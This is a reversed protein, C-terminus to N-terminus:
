RRRQFFQGEVFAIHDLLSLDEDVEITTRELGRERM